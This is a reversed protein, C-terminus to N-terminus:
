KKAPKSLNRSADWRLRVGFTPATTGIPRCIAAAGNAPIMREPAPVRTGFLFVLKM